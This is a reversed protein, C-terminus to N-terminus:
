DRKIRGVFAPLMVTLYLLRAVHAAAVFGPNAGLVIGMAIMTELGGPAFAVLVHAPDFGLALAVPLATALAMLVTLATVLLGAGLSQAFAARTLGNFRAGILTGVTMLGAYALWPPMFGPTLDTAHGVSSAVMGGILLPAPLGIKDLAYGLVYGLGLLMFLDIWHMPAGSPLVQGTLEFGLALAIAPVTLTLALLRVSQIVVIRTTDLGLGTSLGVVFSLHGPAAALYASRRDMAFGRQLIQGCLWLTAWLMVGLAAFALPWRLMAQVSSADVGSGISVGVLLFVLNRVTDDIGTRLGALAAVAVVLAPGTLVAIPAHLTEAVGAGIAGVLLTQATIRLSDPTPRALM